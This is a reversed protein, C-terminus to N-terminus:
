AHSVPGITLVDTLRASGYTELYWALSDAATDKDDYITVIKDGLYIAWEQRKAADRSPM